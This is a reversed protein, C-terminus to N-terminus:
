IGREDNVGGKQHNKLLAPCAAATYRALQWYISEATYINYCMMERKDLPYVVKESSTNRCGCVGLSPM